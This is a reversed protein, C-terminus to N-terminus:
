YHSEGITMGTCIKQDVSCHIGRVGGSLPVGWIMKTRRDAGGGWWFFHALMSGLCCHKGVLVEFDGGFFAGCSDRGDISCFHARAMVMFLVGFLVEWSVWGDIKRFILWCGFVFWWRVEMGGKCGVTLIGVHAQVTIQMGLLM